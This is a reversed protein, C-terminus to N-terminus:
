PLFLLLQLKSEGQLLSPKEQLNESILAAL